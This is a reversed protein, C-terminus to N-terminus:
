FKMLIGREAFNWPFLYSEVYTDDLFKQFCTIFIGYCKPIKFLYLFFFIKRVIILTISWLCSLLYAFQTDIAIESWHSVMHGDMISMDFFAIDVMFGDLSFVFHSFIYSLQLFCNCLKSSFWGSWKLFKLVTCMQKVKQNDESFLHLWQVLLLIAIFLICKFWLSNDLYYIKHKWLLSYSFKFKFVQSRDLNSNFPTFTVDKKSVTPPREGFLVPILDAAPGKHM